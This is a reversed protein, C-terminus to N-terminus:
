LWPFPVLLHLNAHAPAFQHMQTLQFHELTHPFMIKSWFRSWAWLSPFLLPSFRSSFLYACRSNRTLVDALPVNWEPDIDEIPHMMERLVLSTLKMTSSSPFHWWLWHFKDETSWSHRVLLMWCSSMYTLRLWLPHILQCCMVFVTPLVINALSCFCSPHLHLLCSLSFCRRIRNMGEWIQIWWITRPFFISCCGLINAPLRKYWICYRWECLVSMRKDTSHM